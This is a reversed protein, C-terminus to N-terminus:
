IPNLKNELVYLEVITKMDDLTPNHIRIGGCNHYTVGNITYSVRHAHCSNDLTKGCHQNCMHDPNILADPRQNIFEVIKDPHTQFVKNFKVHCRFSFMRYDDGQWGDGIYGVRPWEVARKEYLLGGSWVPKFPDFRYGYRKSESYLYYQIEQLEESMGSVFALFEIEHKQEAPDEIFRYSFVTIPSIANYWYCSGMHSCAGYCRRCPRDTFYAILVHLVHPNAPYKVTFQTSKKGFNEVIFGKDALGKFMVEPKAHKWKNFGKYAVTLTNDDIEGIISKVISFLFGTLREEHPGISIGGNGNNQKKYPDPYGWAVPDHEIDKYCNIIFQQLERFANVFQEQTLNELHNPNVKLDAPVAAIRERSAKIEAIHRAMAKSNESTTGM